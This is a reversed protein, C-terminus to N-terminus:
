ATHTRSPSDSFDVERSAFPGFGPAGRCLPTLSAWRSYRGLGISTKEVRETPVFRM